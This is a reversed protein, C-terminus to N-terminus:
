LYRRKVDCIGYLRKLRYSMMNLEPCETCSIGQYMFINYDIRSKYLYSIHYLHVCSLHIFSLHVNEKYM